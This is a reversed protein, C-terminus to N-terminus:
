LFICRFRNLIFHFIHDNSQLHQGFISRCITSLQGCEDKGMLYLRKCVNLLNNSWEM